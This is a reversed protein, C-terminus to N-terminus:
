LHHNKEKKTIRHTFGISLESFDAQGFNSNIHAALYFNTTPKNKTNIAYFKLGLRGLIHKKYDYLKQSKQLSFHTKYFPKYLNIGSQWDVGVYGLLFEAGFSLYVNSANSYPKEIYPSINTDVIFDYYHQYFRYNVGFSLKVINKYFIGATASASYVSKFKSDETLFAQIGNGLRFNYFYDGFKNISNKDFSKTNNELKKSSLNFQHSVSLLASNLGENPLKTHGNSHHFVGLGLRLDHKTLQTDYYVFGQVAWTYDSSVAKNNPNNTIHYKTDFYSIGMGLKTSWKHNKLPHFELFPILSVSQGKISTGYNTYYLGVGTTPYNLISQWESSQDNNKHEYSLGLIFQPNISTLLKYSPISKGLMLEPRITNNNKQQSFSYVSIFLFFLVKQM